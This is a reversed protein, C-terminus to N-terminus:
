WGYGGMGYTGFTFYGNKSGYAGVNTIPLGYDISLPGVGPIYIKLGVGISIASLPRDYLISSTTKDFIQGADVFMTFRMKKLMEFKTKDMFPIPTALEASGMMFGEGSGVGSMKYGRVTYPGGLRYAMIEPMDNGHIKMGAKGTLSLSSKEFVPFFKTFTGALRGNTRNFHDVCLAETYRAQAIVGSRPNELNDVNTYMIGPAINLFIGGKLQEKRGAIDLNNKAYMQAIKNFDGEKLHIYEAGLGFTTKLHENDKIKHQIENYLGIRQEIALPIQYSGLERYYLKSQLSTDANLFYPEFFSLEVQYNMRNKISADNLLIGSGVVGSLSVQQAKGRFNNDRLALSGFVGLGTDLGGGISISDTHKEKVKVTIDYTGDNNESPTIERNVDEFIQTSFINALDKKLLEENYVSGAHTVINRKIVYDKTKENGSINIKNIIGESINFNLVGNSDDDVSSVNALIYGNKSYHENLHEISNNIENLNQPLGKLMSVYPLLESESFVTNGKIVTNTVLINEKLEYTLKVKNKIIEPEVSMDDTFYGTAYIKQLDQQLKNTNFPSDVKTDIQSLVIQPDLVKLGKIQIDAIQKGEIDFDDDNQTSLNATYVYNDDTTVTQIQEEQLNNNQPSFIDEAFPQSQLPQIEQSDDLDNDNSLKSDEIINNKPPTSECKASSNEDQIQSSFYDAENFERLKFTNITNTNPTTKTTQTTDLRIPNILKTSKTTQSFNIYSFDDSNAFVNNCAFNASVVLMVALKLIGKKKIKKCIM